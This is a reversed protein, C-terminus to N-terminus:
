RRQEIIEYTVYCPVVVFSIYLFALFLCTMLFHVYGILFRELLNLWNSM